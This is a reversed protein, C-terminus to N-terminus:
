IFLLKRLRYILDAVSGRFPDGLPKESGRSFRSAKGQLSAHSDRHRRPIANLATDFYSSVLGRPM